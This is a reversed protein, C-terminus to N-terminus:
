VIRGLRHEILLPVVAKTMLFTGHVNVEFVRRWEATTVEPFPTPSSIGANNVLGVLQPLEDAIREGARGVGEEDPTDVALGPAPVGHAAEVEAAVAECADEDLDLVAVAWGGRALRHATARGIGRPSAAGTVIATPQAPFASAPYAPLAM